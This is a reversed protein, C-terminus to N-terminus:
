NGKTEMDILVARAQPVKSDREHFYKNITKQYYSSPKASSLYPDSTKGTWCSSKADSHLISFLETGIQNGCQGLQVVVTSM